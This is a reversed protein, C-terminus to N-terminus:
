VESDGRNAMIERKVCILHLQDSYIQAQRKKVPKFGQLPPRMCLLKVAGGQWAPMGKCM